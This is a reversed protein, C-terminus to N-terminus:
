EVGVAHALEASLMLDVKLAGASGTRQTRSPTARDDISPMSRDQGRELPAGTRAVSMKAGSIGIAELVAARRAENRRNWEDDSIVRQASSSRNM